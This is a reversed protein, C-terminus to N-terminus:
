DEDTDDEGNPEEEVEIINVVKPRLSLLKKIYYGEESFESPCREM